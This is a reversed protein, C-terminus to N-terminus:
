KDSKTNTSFHSCFADTTWVIGNRIKLNRSKLVDPDVFVHVLNLSTDTVFFPKRNIIDEEHRKNKRM